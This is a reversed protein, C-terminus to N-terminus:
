NIILSSDGYSLFRFNNQMAYDYIKRWDNGAFAAVLLLLTSKPQHFNTILRNVIKSKYEPTIMIQTSACIENLNNRELYGIIAQLAQQVSIQPYNNEYPEFQRINLNKINQNQSIKCGTWYLSELTRVSTTGVAIINGLFFILKQVTSKKVFFHERHM